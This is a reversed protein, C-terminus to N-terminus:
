DFRNFTIYMPHAQSGLAQLIRNMEKKCEKETGSYINYESGSIEEVLYYTAKM